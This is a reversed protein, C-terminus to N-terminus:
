VQFHKWFAMTLGTALLPEELVFLKTKSKLAASFFAAFVVERFANDLFANPDLDDEVETPLM